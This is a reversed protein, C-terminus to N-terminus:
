FYLKAGLQLVRFGGPGTNPTSANTGWGANQAITLPTTPTEYNWPGNVSVGYNQSVFNPHNFVNFAELRMQLYRAENKGLPLNKFLSMDWNQIGGYRLTDRTGRVPFGIKPMVLNKNADLSYYFPIAGYQDSGTVSGPPFSFASNLDVPTGTMFQTVGSLEFNDTVYSLWTPGKFHKTLNPLSYVYNAAFVQTRDWPAARYDLLANFPDQTDQDSGATTLSKSWTYVAGFTLGKSFRRQLSAQLSSYNATGGFGLYAIQGYGKYPEFFASNTAFNNFGYACYGNFSYGAAAYQPQLNPQVSPVVGGPFVPNGNNDVCNPDQSSQLFATGYPVANIDRSTVLHRSLTGVYALDLTTGGGIEHQVGLSFSYVTPVKGNRDASVVNSLVGNGFSSQLTPLSSIAGAGVSATQVLAPNDFVTNFILNGQTRDHTMGFGGRLITKHSAFLDYAFGFRPEPMIGRDDWGGMPIQSEKTFQIGNLPNGGDATIINGSHPDITVANAPSYASPQFLAVQNNADYQPPIWVFRMGYDLTLRTTAKWTDQVYFELQNYRFKGLPRATSQDFGQFGGELASALPDGLQCTGPGGPCTGNNTPSDGFNFQGNFNGWAIQDKRNRQYFMGTKFVHTNRVWTLNDNVNITTNAQHWPTGGLYPGQFDIANLGNFSMDPIAESQPVAYLLPLTIGNAARSINGNTGEALSLTHSPGVSFENLITPTITSVLNASFNWGPHQQICGGTFTTGSSCAFIGFPGPFPTFPSTDTESNHIWRGNLRNKSNIQLDVRLIDERRPAEGSLSKSYNYFNGNAFGSANPLPFLNLMKEVQQFVAQQTPSLQTPDIKNNTVGPGSIVIPLGNGDTSQSFDGTRELATPTYFQALALPILQRYFEQGWFVFLKDKKIPGGVQYGFYNYRYIEPENPAGNALENQKNFYENANLGDNRHFFRGDGHWQNTGSKTTLAIQGGAAKGFEAQYNSTLVKVDEIADLNLTVHTGGNNGTDVNSAGDITFEHENARTGNINYADLGGTGSQHADLTGAVGPILKMYDLVNRGNLAVDNLQKSTILDSREGSNSQLQLQGADATVSVSETSAGVALAFEGANLKDAANLVVGQEDLKKFGKAEISISYTGPPMDPVVFDGTDNTTVSRAAGFDPSRVIVIAGGVYAGSADKVRGFITGSTVQAVASGLMLLCLVGAGLGILWDRRMDRGRPITFFM